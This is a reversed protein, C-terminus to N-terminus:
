RQGNEIGGKKPNFGNDAMCRDIVKYVKEPTINKSCEFQRDTGKLRPCWSGDEHDFSIRTDDWCGNCGHYSIVRYPTTFENIPLTFGSILIVPKGVGWAVWSLGSSLGIFFDAHYLLDIREQLPKDGTFDECGYPITNTYSDVQHNDERDICLVRYGKEKLYKVVNIWGRSNNWHKAQSSANAAICVYPEPITRKELEKASPLLKPPHETWEDCGLLLAASRHLGMVRFDAPQHQRDDCPFFVGMRYTAYIDHPVEPPIEDRKEQEDSYDVFHLDPYGARLIGGMNKNILVYVNCGHKKRFEEAYPFWALTDGLVTTAPFKIIVNNGKADYTHSFVLKDDQWIEFGFRVYYKKSTTVMTDSVPGDFLCLCDDADVVNVRYNGRPVQIRLGDNFDFKLGSISTTQTLHSPGVFVRRAGEGRNAAASAGVVISSTTPGSVVVAGASSANHDYTSSVTAGNADVYTTTRVLSSSSLSAMSINTNIKREKEKILEDTKPPLLGVMIMGKPPANYGSAPMMMPAAVGMPLAMTNQQNKKETQKTNDKAM